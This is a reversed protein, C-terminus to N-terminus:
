GEAVAKAKEEENLNYNQLEMYKVYVQKSNKFDSWYVYVWNKILLSLFALVTTFTIIIRM